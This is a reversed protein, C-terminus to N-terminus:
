RQKTSDTFLYGTHEGARNGWRQKERMLRGCAEEKREKQSKGGIHTRRRCMPVGVCCIGWGKSGNVNKTKRRTPRPTRLTVQAAPAS